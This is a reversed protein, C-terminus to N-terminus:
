AWRKKRKEYRRIEERVQKIWDWPEGSDACDIGSRRELWRCARRHAERLQGQEIFSAICQHCFCVLTLADEDVTESKEVVFCWMLATVFDPSTGIGNMYIKALLAQAQTVGNNAAIDFWVLADKNQGCSLALCALGFQAGAHGSCAAQEYLQKSRVIDRRCALGNEYMFALSCQAKSSGLGASKEFLELAKEQSEEVGQGYQYMTGLYYAAVPHDAEAAMDFWKRASESSRAVGALGFLYKLGLEFQAQSHGQMAAKQLWFRAGSEDRREFGRGSDLMKSFRYQSQRDGSAAAVSCWHAAKVLDKEIGRGGEYVVSLYFQATSDGSEARHELERIFDQM